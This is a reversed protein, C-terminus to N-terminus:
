EVLVGRYYRSKKASNLHKSARASHTQITKAPAKAAYLKKDWSEGARDLFVEILRQNADNDIALYLKIM